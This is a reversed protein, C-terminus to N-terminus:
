FPRVLACGWSASSSNLNSCAPFFTQGIMPSIHTVQQMLPDTAAIGLARGPGACPSLPLETHLLHQVTAMQKAVAGKLRCTLMYLQFWCKSPGRQCVNSWAKRAAVLHIHLESFFALMISNYFSSSFAAKTASILFLFYCRKLNHRSTSTVDDCRPNQLVLFHTRSLKVVTPAAM